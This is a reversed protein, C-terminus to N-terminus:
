LYQNCQREVYAPIKKIGKQLQNKVIMSKEFYIPSSMQHRMHKESCQHQLHWSLVFNSQIKSTESKFIIKINASNKYKM